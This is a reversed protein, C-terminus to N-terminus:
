YRDLAAVRRRIKMKSSRSLTGGDQVQMRAVEDRLALIRGVRDHRMMPVQYAGPLVAPNMPQTSIGSAPAALQASAPMAVFMALVIPIRTIM